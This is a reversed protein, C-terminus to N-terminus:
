KQLFDYSLTVAYTSLSLQRFKNLANSMAWMGNKDRLHLCLRLVWPILFQHITESLPATLMDIDLHLGTVLPEGPYQNPSTSNLIKAPSMSLPTLNAPLVLNHPATLVPPFPHWGPSRSLGSLHPQTFRMSLEFGLAADLESSISSSCTWLSTMSIILPSSCKRMTGPKFLKPQETQFLFPEPSGKYWKRAGLPAVLCCSLTMPCTCIPSSGPSIDKFQFIPNSYINPLFEKSHPYPVSVPEQRKGPTNLASHPKSGVQDVPILGQGHCSPQFSIVKLTKKLEFWEM